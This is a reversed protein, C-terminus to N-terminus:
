ECMERIITDRARDVKQAFGFWETPHMDASDLQHSIPTIGQEVLIAHAVEHSISTAAFCDPDIAQIELSKESTEPDFRLYGDIGWPNDACVGSADVEPIACMDVENGIIWIEYDDLTHADARYIELLRAITRDIEDQTYPGTPTRDYIYDGCGVLALAFFWLSLPTTKM